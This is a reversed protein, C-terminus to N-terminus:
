QLVLFSYMQVSQVLILVSYLDWMSSSDRLVFSPNMPGSASM